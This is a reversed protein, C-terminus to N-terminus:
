RLRWPEPEDRPPSDVRFSSAGGCASCTYAVEVWLHGGCPCQHPVSMLATHLGPGPAVQVWGPGQHECAPPYLRLGDPYARPVIRGASWGALGGALLAVGLGAAIWARESM